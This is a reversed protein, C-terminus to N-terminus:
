DMPWVPSAVLWQGPHQSIHRELVEVVMEMGAKVDAERDGTQPLEIPPEIQALFSNDPLRLGFAPILAAGTRLAVRVPGAPLRAPSGFFDVERANDGLDRDCPLGIIEGRKLARFLESLPGDSPFLRTGHSTRL